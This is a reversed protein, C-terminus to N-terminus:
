LAERHAGVDQVRPPKKGVGPQIAHGEARLRAAQAEPFGPFKEMLSGDERVVRWYPAAEAQGQALDDEAVEAVFRLFMGTCMPCTSDADFDHALRDRIQNVTALRGEGIRRVAADIDLPRPILLRGGSRRDAVIERPRPDELKQRATKRAKSM